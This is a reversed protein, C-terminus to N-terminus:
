STKFIGIVSESEFPFLVRGLKRVVVYSKLTVCNFWRIIFLTLTSKRCWDYLYDFFFENIESIRVFDTFFLQVQFYLESQTRKSGIALRRLTVQSWSKRGWRKNNWQSHSKGYWDNLSHYNEYLFFWLSSYWM